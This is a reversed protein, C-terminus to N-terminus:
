ITVKISINDWLTGTTSPTPYVSKLVIKGIEGAGSLQMGTATWVGDVQQCNLTGILANSTDYIEAITQRDAYLGSYTSVSLQMGQIPLSSVGMRTKIEAAQVTTIVPGTGSPLLTHISYSDGAGASTFLVHGGTWDPEDSAFTYNYNYTQSAGCNGAVYGLLDSDQIFLLDMLDPDSKPTILSAVSRKLWTNYNTDTVNADLWISLSDYLVTFAATQDVAAQLSTILSAKNSTLHGAMGSFGIDSVLVIGTLYSLQNYYIDAAATVYTTYNTALTKVKAPTATNALLWEYLDQKDWFPTPTSIGLAAGIVTPEYMKGTETFTTILMDIIYNSSQCQEVSGNVIPSGDVYTGCCTTTIGALYDDDFSPWWDATYFLINYLLVPVWGIVLSRQQPALGADILANTMRLEADVASTAKSLSCIIDGKTAQIKPLADQLYPQTINETAVDALNVIILAVVGAAIPGSILETPGPVAFFDIVSVVVATVVSIILSGAFGVGYTIKATKIALLVTYGVSTNALTDVSYELWGYLWVAVKCQRDALTGPPDSYGEPPGFVDTPDGPENYPVIESGTSGASGAGGCGCGCNKINITVNSM